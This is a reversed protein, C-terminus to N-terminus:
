RRTATSRTAVLPIGILVLLVVNFAVNFTVGHAVSVVSDLLFWLSTGIALAWWPWRERNGIANWALLTIAVGWGALTAGWAGYVWSRFAATGPDPPGDNWFVPDILRNFVEFLPTASTVAMVIGFMTVVFGMATLWRRSVELTM